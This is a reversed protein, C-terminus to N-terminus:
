GNMAEVIPNAEAGVKYWSAKAALAQNLGFAQVDGYREFLNRDITDITAQSADRYSSSVSDNLKGISRFSFVAMIALPVTGLVLFAIMLKTTLGLHSGSSSQSPSSNIQTQM